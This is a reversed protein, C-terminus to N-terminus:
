VLRVIQATQRGAVAPELRQAVIIDGALPSGANGKRLNIDRAGGLVPGFISVAGQANM